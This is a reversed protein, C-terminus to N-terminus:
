NQLSPRSAREGPDGKYISVHATASTLMYDDHNGVSTVSATALLLGKQYNGDLELRLMGILM